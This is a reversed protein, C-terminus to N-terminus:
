FLIYESRVYMHIYTHIHTHAHTYMKLFNSVLELFKVDIGIFFLFFFYMKFMNKTWSCFKKKILKNIKTKNIILKTQPIIWICKKIKKNIYMCVYMSIYIKILTLLM